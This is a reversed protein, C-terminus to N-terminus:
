CGGQSYDRGAVHRWHGYVPLILSFDVNASWKRSWLSELTKPLQCSIPHGDLLRGNNKFELEGHHDYARAELISCRWLIWWKSKNKKKMTTLVYKLRGSESFKEKFKSCSLKPIKLLFLFRIMKIFILM